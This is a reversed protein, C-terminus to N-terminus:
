TARPVQDAYQGSRLRHIVGVSFRCLSTFFAELPKKLKTAKEEPRRVIVVRLWVGPMVSHWCGEVCLVEAGEEDPHAQWAEPRAAEALEQPNGLRRGKKAQPGPQSSLKPEPRAYLPSDLYLRGVVHANEPLDQLFAKTAYNGDQVSLVTREPGVLRCVRDLM